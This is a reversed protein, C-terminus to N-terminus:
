KKAIICIGRPSIYPHFLRRCSVSSCFEKLFLVRDCWVFAELLQSIRAQLMIFPICRFIIEDFSGLNKFWQEIYQKLEDETKNEHKLFEEIWPILEDKYNPDNFSFTKAHNGVNHLARLLYTSFSKSYKERIGGTYHVEKHNPLHEHIFLELAARYSHMKMAYLWNERTKSEPHPNSAVYSQSMHFKIRKEGTILYKSMPFGYNDSEKVIEENNEQYKTMLSHTNETLKHYCCGVMCLHTIQNLSKFFRMLTPTLDGCPHLGTLVVKEDTLKAIKQFEEASTQATLFATYSEAKAIEQGKNRKQSIDNVRIEMKTTFEENGEIGIARLQSNLVLYETLYGKGCGVDVVTSLKDENAIDIIQNGLLQIEYKKKQNMLVLDVPMRKGKVDTLYWKQDDPDKIREMESTKYVSSLRRCKEIFDNLSEPVPFEKKLMEIIEENITSPYETTEMKDVSLDIIYHFVEQAHTPNSQLYQELKEFFNVRWDEPILEYTNNILSHVAKDIEILSNEEDYHNTIFLGVYQSLFDNLEDCYQEYTEFHIPLIEDEHYTQNGHQKM